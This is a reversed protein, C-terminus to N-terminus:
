ELGDITISNCTTSNVTVNSFTATTGTTGGTTCAAFYYTTANGNKFFVVNYTGAPVTGLTGGTTPINFTTQALTSTNTYSVSFGAIAIPNSCTITVTSSATCTGNTNAYNQGNANVDNQALQDAAAQTAASYTNAAVTYTVQSGVYGTTCNNRTFTQSKAVNYHLSNDCATQGFYNYCIKKIVNKDQDRVVVLRNFGDYEYYSIRNNIDCQSTMGVLPNYTFTTMQATSPYLRVEDIYATAAAVSITLTTTNATITHEYYTWGSITKGTISTGTGGTITYAGNKSWYSVIYVVGSTVSKSMAGSHMDYVKNGTPATVDTVPTGSFTWGGNGSGEFSTYAVQSVAAHRVQAIPYTNNYDWIISVPIQDAATYQAINYAADYSDMSVMQAYRSDQTVTNGSIAMPQFDTVPSNVALKFVKDPLLVNGPSVIKFSSYQAGAIYGTSSGSYYLSDRKEVPTTVMNKNIMTDLITNNTITNGNPIYDQAYKMFAVHKNGKSDLINSRTPQYHVPNDYSFTKINTMANGTVQDYTTEDTEDLLIRESKLSPYFCALYLTQVASDGACPAITGNSHEPNGNINLYKMNFYPTRNTTHYFSKSEAVKTYSGSNNAYVTKRLLSGNLNNGMNTVGPLKFGAYYLVTDSSNFYEYVTKGLDGGGAPDVTYEEVSDYGVINGTIVSTLQNYSSGYQTLSECSVTANNSYPIWMPENRAYSPFSMLRGTLYNYTRKKAVVSSASYDTVSKIRLGGAMLIPNNYHLTRLEKWDFKLTIDQFYSGVTDAIFTGYTLAVPSVTLPISETCIPGSCTVNSSAMDYTNGQFTVYVRGFFQHYSSAAANPGAVRFTITFTANQTFVGAPIIPFIKTFDITGSNSGRTSVELQSTTDILAQQPYDQPGNISKTQDYYNPEYEFQSYGGTPYTVKQLSFAQMSTADPERNSRPISLYYSNGLPAVLGNFTPIFSTNGSTGNAFGWHDVAFSSKGPGGTTNYTFSYPPLSNTGSAERVSDLRLRMDEYPSTSSANFYSYFFQQEKIYTLGAPTKSYLKVTNLRKGNQLDARSNDFSFQLQGSSFDISSLTINLYLTSAGYSSTLGEQTPCGTRLTENLPALVETYTADNTYNFTVVDKQQTTIKSLNWSSVSLAGGGSPKSYEKDAFYFKNGQEDTITFSNGSNEFEFKINEQKQMVVKRDRTIIFKGSHGPFNYSYIDPEMDTTLTANGSFVPYYDLVGGATYVKYDCYFAYGYKTGVLSNSASPYAIMDSAIQPVSSTFYASGGFDDKDMITRTISGGSSLAWGLGVWGSEEHVRIGGTHYSLSVPVSIGKAEINYIPVTVDATGTYTSVPLDSFKMLSAANPSPPIINPVYPSPAQANIERGFSLLATLIIFVKKLRRTTKKYPNRIQIIM